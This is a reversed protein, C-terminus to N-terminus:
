AVQARVVMGGALMAQVGRSDAYRSGDEVAANCRIAGSRCEPRAIGGSAPSRRQGLADAARLERILTLAVRWGEQFRVAAFDSHVFGALAIM